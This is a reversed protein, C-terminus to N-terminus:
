TIGRFPLGFGSVGEIDALLGALNKQVVEDAAGFKEYWNLYAVIINSCFREAHLYLVKEGNSLLDICEHMVSSSLKPSTWIVRDWGLKAHAQKAQHLLSCRLAYVEEGNMFANPLNSDYWQVFRKGTARGDPASLGGVIDPIM